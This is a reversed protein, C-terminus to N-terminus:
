RKELLGGWLNSSCPTFFSCSETIERRNGRQATHGQRLKSNEFALVSGTQRDPWSVSRRRPEPRSVDSKLFRSIAWLLVFLFFLLPLMWQTQFCMSSGVRMSAGAPQAGIPKRTPFDKFSSPPYQLSALLDIRCSLWRPRLVCPPSFTLTERCCRFLARFDLHMWPGLLSFFIACGKFKQM